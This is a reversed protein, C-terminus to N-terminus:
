EIVRIDVANIIKKFMCKKMDPGDVLQGSISVTKNVLDSLDSSTNIMYYTTQGAATQGGVIYYAECHNIDYAQYKVIGEYSNVCGSVLMVLVVTGLSILLKM